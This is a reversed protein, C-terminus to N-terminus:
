GQNGELAPKRAPPGTIIGPRRVNARVTINVPVTPFVQDDWRREVQRWYAPAKRYVLEGFGLVDTRLRQARAVTQRILSTIQTQGAANLEAFGVPDALDRRCEQASLESEFVVGISVEPRGRVFRLESTSNARTIDMTAVRGPEGPCPVNLHGRASRDRVWLLGRSEGRTFWGVLRDGKFLGLNELIVMPKGRVVTARQVRVGPIVPQRGPSTLDLGLQNVTVPLTGVIYHHFRMLGTVTEALTRELDEGSRLVERAPGKSILVKMNPRNLPHRQFFDVLPTIGRRAMADGIVWVENHEPHFRRPIGRQLARAAELPTRGTGTIVQVPPGSSGGQAAGGRVLAAPRAVQMTMRYPRPGPELDFGIAVIMALENIEKRSWCGTLSLVLPLLVCLALLQKTNM